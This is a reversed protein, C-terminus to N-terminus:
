KRAYEEARFGFTGLFVGAARAFLAAANAVGRKRLTISTAFHMIGVAVMAISRVTGKLVAIIRKERLILSNARTVGYRYQRNIAWKWTLRSSPQVEQVEAHAAYAGTAGARVFDQFFLTDSGGSYRLKEDFTVGTESLKHMNILVNNTWSEKRPAGDEFTRQAFFVSELWWDDAPDEVLMKCPGQVFDAGTERQIKLHEVVLNPTVTEDDDVFLLFDASQAEALVRNRASPIGPNPEHAYTCPWNIQGSLEDVLDRSSPESDNDVIVIDFKVGDPIILENMSLFLAKLGAPRRYTCAGLRVHIM